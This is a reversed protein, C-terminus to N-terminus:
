QSPHPPPLASMVSRPFHLEPPSTPGPFLTVTEMQALTTIIEASTTILLGTTEDRLISLDTPLITPTEAWMASQLITKLAVSPEKVYM